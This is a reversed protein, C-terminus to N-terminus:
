GDARWGSSAAVEAFIIEFFFLFSVNIVLFKTFWFKGANILSVFFRDTAILASFQLFNKEKERQIRTSNSIIARTYLLM